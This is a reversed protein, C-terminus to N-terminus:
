ELDIEIKYRKEIIKRFEILQEPSSKIGAEDLIEPLSYFLDEIDGNKLGRENVKLSERGKNTERLLGAEVFKRAISQMIKLGKDTFHITYHPFSPIIQIKQTKDVIKLRAWKNVTEYVSTQAIIGKFSDCLSKVDVGDNRYVYLFLDLYKGDIDNQAMKRWKIENM